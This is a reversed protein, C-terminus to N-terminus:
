AESKIKTYRHKMDIFRKEYFGYSLYAVLVTLLIIVPYSVLGFMLGDAGYEEALRFYTLMILPHIVYIGYSIRGLFDCLRNDLNVPGCAGNIQGIIVCLTVTAVLDHNVFDTVYFRNLAILALCLWALFQIAPLSMLSILKSPRNFYCYAGIAGIAMCDFRALYVMAYQVSAGDGYRFLLYRLVLKILIFGALFIAFAVLEHKAKRVLYPWFLYFQEEVGITWLHSLLPIPVIHLAYGANGIMLIYFLYNYPEDYLGFFYIVGLSVLLYGYYLPWIRLIRRVYFNRINVRSVAKECLLLYTILFGSLTFFMTVGFDAMGNGFHVPNTQFWPFFANLTVSIHSIVVGIAAMARIGNLGKLHIVQERM